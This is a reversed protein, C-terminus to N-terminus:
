FCFISGSYIRNINSFLMWIVTRRRRWSLDIEAVSLMLTVAHNKICTCCIKCKLLCGFRACHSSFSHCSSTATDHRIGSKIMELFGRKLMGRRVNVRGKRGKMEGDGNSNWSYKWSYHNRIIFRRVAVNVSPIDVQWGLMVMILHVIIIMKMLSVLILKVEVKTIKITIAIIM